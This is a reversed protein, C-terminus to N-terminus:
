AKEFTQEWQKGIHSQVAGHGDYQAHRANLDNSIFCAIENM